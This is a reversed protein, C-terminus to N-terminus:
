PTNAGTVNMYGTDQYRSYHTGIQLQASASASINIAMKKFVMPAAWPLSYVHPINQSSSWKTGGGWVTVGPSATWLAGAPVVAVIVSGLQQGQEDQSEVTYTINGGSASLEQTSEVVQKQTMHGTKPFTSSLLIPAQAVGLDTYVTVSNQASQSAILIGPNAQGTLIFDNGNQSACDYPVSHPGTWRRRHEDFWYDNTVDQGAVVTPMCVRYISGAYAAAIRSPVTAAVWPAQVDPDQDQISRTLPRVMGFPDIIYPGAVNAFYLGQPSQAVSRPANTGTTLSLFNQALNSTTTDGTIQWVQTPKFAILAGIVGSSTTQIPLGSLATIATTDGITLQQTANTRTKPALVDSYPLANGVAFYARNNFNAVAQPVATLANTALNSSSWAPAAPNTLDIVGFFNAGVGNFGPHTIIVYVGIAAMTPPTWAGTTAPSTPTNAGTVGSISVFAGTSFDYCFPEDMGTNRATAVMGYIRTGIIAHVSVFGPTTFDSFNYATTVGPRSIMIEPNSRDFILDKLTRCAGPFKGTSDYADVLGSPTFKMPYSKPIAM